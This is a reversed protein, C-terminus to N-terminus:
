SRDSRDKLRCGFFSWYYSIRSAANNGIFQDITPSFCVLL